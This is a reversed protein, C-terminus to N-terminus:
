DLSKQMYDGTAKRIQDIVENKNGKPKLGINRAIQKLELIGYVPNSKSTRDHSIRSRKEYVEKFTAPLRNIDEREAFQFVTEGVDLNLSFNGVNTIGVSPIQTQGSTIESKVYGLPLQNHVTEIKTQVSPFIIHSLPTGVYTVQPESM